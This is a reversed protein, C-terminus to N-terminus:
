ADKIVNLEKNFNNKYRKIYESPTMGFLKVFQERFYRQDEFGVQSSIQAINKNETLMLLAARRLKVSRIFANLTQGSIQKIKDYLSRHSMGMELAFFKLSFDPNGFNAEIIEICKNLFEKYEAPVKSGNDKLTINDLFYNKLNSRSKLLREVKAILIDSNFPKTIFDDAGESIGRLQIEQNSTATLLIVPLHGLEKSTKIKKCLELGDMGDMSIDSIIIDPNHKQALAFGDIGNDATYVISSAAFLGHLYDRMEANDEVILVSKKETLIEKEIVAKDEATEADFNDEGILEEVLESKKPTIANVPLHAFHAHGKLFSLTFNTGKGKESECDISAQHKEVFYRTIFLGVGFGSKGGIKSGARRFKSFIHPQDEKSIGSGNDSISITVNTPEDSVKLVIRGKPPTYKFANSAINFLAIEIKEYDGFIEVPSEPMDLVFDIGQQAALNVFCEYVEKCLHKVDIPTVALEDADSEAKRFLLLQDVLSLLRRANRHAVGLEKNLGEDETRIKKSAQRLPNIILSLPTRFEHTIYTFMEVQREAMQKEQRRELQALEVKHAMEIKYRNYRVWGIIIGIVSLGYLVYAWWARYWPPSVTVTALTVPADWTGDANLTKVKFTYDGEAIHNYNAKRQNDTYVWHDDWGELMYAYKIKDPHLYDLSVFDFSLATQGYPLKLHSITKNQSDADVFPSTGNLPRSNLWMGSLRVNEIHSSNVIAEPRFINFGNIGGFLMEGSSLLLAANFSFQNSQLGDSLSFNRFAKKKDFRSLGNYTSIWLNGKKDELIRLVANGPLGDVTTYRKYKGTQTDFQLLGGEQTGVWLQGSSDQKVARVPYGLEYKQFTKKNIDISYLASYNGGWLKGDKTQTLSQLNRIDKNFVEFAQKDENFLYLTGENTASVWINNDKDKFVLWTNKELQKTYPNYCDYHRITGTKVDLRNVDGYWTSIWLDNDNGRAIGTIFNGSLGSNKDTYEKFTNNVRDWYKLGAGDTGVWVGYDDGECFSLIFNEPSPTEPDGDPQIHTFRQPDHGLLNIGARLTGFWLNDQQDEYICVFSNSKSLFKQGSQIYPTAKNNGKPLTYLGHGDTAMWIVGREDRLISLVTHRGEMKNDSLSRNKFDLEYAGSGTGLWLTNKTKDYLLSYIRQDLPYHLTLSMNALDLRCVGHNRVAVWCINQQPMYEVAVADYDYIKAGNLLLPVQKAVVEAGKYYLIGLDKTAMVVGGKVTKLQHVENSVTLKQSPKNYPTYFVREFADTARNLRCAGRAGGNWLYNNSDETIAYVANSVLSTSDGITNRYVKFNYGDFRNLGDYTGFWLFGEKDQLISVVSSNSLGNNIDFHKLQFDQAAAKFFLAQVLVLFLFGRLKM